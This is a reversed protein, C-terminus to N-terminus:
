VNARTPQRNRFVAAMVTKLNKVTGVNFEKWKNANWLEMQDQQGVVVVEKELDAM